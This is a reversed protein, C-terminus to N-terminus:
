KRVRQQIEAESEGDFINFGCCWCRFGRYGEHYYHNADTMSAECKPCFRMKMKQEELNNNAYSIPNFDTFPRMYHSYLSVM